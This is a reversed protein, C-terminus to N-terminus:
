LRHAGGPPGGELSAAQRQGLGLRLVGTMQKKLFPDTSTVLGYYIGPEPSYLEASRLAGYGAERPTALAIRSVVEYTSASLEYIDRGFAFFTKGDSSFPLPDTFNTRVEPPLRFSGKVQHANLDYVVYETDETEFRDIDMGVAVVRLILETGGPHPHVNLIRVRRGATSLRLEDVVQRAEPDVVEVAEMRDTIYYLRRFDPPHPTPGYGTVAGYRLRLEGVFQETGEDLLRLQNPWLGMILVRNGAAPAPISSLSLALPAEPFLKTQNM